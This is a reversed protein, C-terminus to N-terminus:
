EQQSLPSNNPYGRKGRGVDRNTSGCIHMTMVEGGVGPWHQTTGAELSVPKPCPSHQPRRLGIPPTRAVGSGLSAWFHAHNAPPNGRRQAGPPPFPRLCSLGTTEASIGVTLRTLWTVCVPGGLGPLPEGALGARPKQLVLGPSAWGAKQRHAAPGERRPGTSGSSTDRRHTGAFPQLLALGWPTTSHLPGPRAKPSRGARACVRSRRTRVCTCACTQACM